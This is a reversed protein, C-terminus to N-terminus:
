TTKRVVNTHIVPPPGNRTRTTRKRASLSQHQMSAVPADNSTRLGQPNEGKQIEIHGFSNPKKSDTQASQPSPEAHEKCRDQKVVLRTTESLEPGVRPDTIRAFAIAANKADVIPRIDSRRVRRRPPGRFRLLHGHSSSVALPPQRLYVPASRSYLLFPMNAPGGM